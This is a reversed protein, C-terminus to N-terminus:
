KAKAKTGFKFIMWLFFLSPAAFVLMAVFSTMYGGSSAYLSAALMPGLLAGPIMGASLAAYNISFYKPGYFTMAFTSSTPPGGGYSLGTALFGALMLVLSGTVSSLILLVSALILFFTMLFMSVKLGFKDFVVGTLVRGLGNSLSLMGTAVAAFAPTAGLGVAYPSAHGIVLLGGAMIMAFWLIYLWYSKATLVGTIPVDVPVAVTKKAAAPSGVSFDAPPMVVVLSGVALILSFALGFGLFTVRWGYSTMLAVALPSLILGGLGFGMMLIGSALGTKEPFWKVISSVLANNALGVGFGVLVGYAVYLGPLSSVRSCLFFGFLLCLASILTIKRKSLVNSLFGSAILGLIFFIMSVTFTFSTQSRTWSFEKELPAVFVSWAYVLGLLTMMVCGVALHIWRRTTHPM